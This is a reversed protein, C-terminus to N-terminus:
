RPDMQALQREVLRKEDATAEGKGSQELSWNLTAAELPSLLAERRLNYEPVEYILRIFDGEVARSVNICGSHGRMSKTAEWPETLDKHLSRVIQARRRARFHPESKFLEFHKNRPFTGPALVLAVFLADPNPAAPPVVM